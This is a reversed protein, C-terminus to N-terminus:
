PGVVGVMPLERGEEPARPSGHCICPVGTPPLSYEASAPQLSLAGRGLGAWSGGLRRARPAERTSEMGHVGVCRGESWAELERSPLLGVSEGFGVGPCGMVPGQLAPGASGAYGTGPRGPGM